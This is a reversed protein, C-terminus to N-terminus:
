QQLRRRVFWAAAGVAVVAAAVGGGLAYPLASGGGGESPGGEEEPAEPSATVEAGPTATATEGGPTATATEAPTPTETAPSPTPAAAGGSVATRVPAPAAEQCTSPSVAINASILENVPILTNGVNILFTTLEPNLPSIPLLDIASAGAALATFTLRAAVGAADAISGGGIRLTGMVWVQLNPNGPDTGTNTPIGSEPFLSGGTSALLFRMDASKFQLKSADFRIILQEGQFDADGPIRDIVIDVQFDGSTVQRCGDLAALATATNGSPDADIAVAEVVAQASLAPSAGGGDAMNGAGTLAWLGAMLGLVATALPYLYGARGKM